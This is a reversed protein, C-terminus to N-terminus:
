RRASHTGIPSSRSVGVTIRYVRALTGWNQVIDSNPRGYQLYDAIAEGVTEPLPLWVPAVGKSNSVRIISERWNIDELELCTVDGVRMGLDSMCRVAAYDRRGTATSRDFACWLSELEDDSLIDPSLCVRPFRLRPISAILRDTDHGCIKKCKFYIRISCCIDGRVTKPAYHELSTMVYEHVREPLMREIIIEDDGFISTLFLGLYRRYLQITGRCCGRHKELFQCFAFLEREINSPPQKPQPWKQQILRAACRVGAALITLCAKGSKSKGRVRKIESAIFKEAMASTADSVSISNRKLWDGFLGAYHLRDLVPKGEMGRSQYHQFMDVIIESLCNRKMRERVKKWTFIQDIMTYGKGIGVGLRM